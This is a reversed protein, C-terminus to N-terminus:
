RKWPSAFNESPSVSFTRMRDGCSTTQALAVKNLDGGVFAGRAEQQDGAFWQVFRNRAVTREDHVRPFLDLLRQAIQALSSENLRRRARINMLCRPTLRSALPCLLTLWHATGNRFSGITRDGKIKGVIGHLVTSTKSPKFSKFM